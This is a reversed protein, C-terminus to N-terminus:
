DCSLLYPRFHRLIIMLTIPLPPAPLATLFGSRGLGTGVTPPILTNLKLPKLNTALYRDHSADPHYFFINLTSISSKVLFDNFLGFFTKHTIM